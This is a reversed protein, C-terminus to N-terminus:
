GKLDTNIFEKEIDMREKEKGDQLPGPIQAQSYQNM